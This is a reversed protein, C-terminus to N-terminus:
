GKIFNGFLTVIGHGKLNRAYHFFSRTYHILWRVYYSFCRTYHFYERTSHLLCRMYLFFCGSYYLMCRMYHFLRWMLQSPVSYLSYTVTYLLTVVSYLSFGGYIIFIFIMLCTHREMLLRLIDLLNSLSLFKRPWSRTFGISILLVFSFFTIALM